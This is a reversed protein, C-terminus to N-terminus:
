LDKKYESLNIVPSTTKERLYYDYILSGLYTVVYNEDELKILNFRELIDIIFYKDKKINLDSFIFTNNEYELIKSAINIMNNYKEELIFSTMFNKNFISDIFLSYAEEEHLKLYDDIRDTPLVYTNETEILSKEKAFNYFINILPYHSQNINKVNKTPSLNLEKSINKLHTPILTDKNESKLVNMLEIYKLFERFNTNIKFNMHDPVIDFLGEDFYFGKTSNKLIEQYKFINDSVKSLETSAKTTNIGNSRMYSYLKRLIFLANYFESNTLFNGNESLELFIDIYSFDNFDSFNKNKIKLSDKYVINMLYFCEDEDFETTNELNVLFHDFILLEEDNFFINKLDEKENNSKLKLHLEEYADLALGFVIFLDITMDKLAKIKIDVSSRLEYGFSTYDTLMEFFLDTMEENLINLIHVIYYYGNFNVLRGFIFDQGQNLNEIGKKEIEFEEDILIDLLTITNENINKILFISTYSEYLSKKIDEKLHNNINVFTNFFNNFVAEASDKYNIDDLLFHLKIDRNSRTFRILDSAENDESKDQLEMLIDLKEIFNISLNYNNESLQRNIEKDM